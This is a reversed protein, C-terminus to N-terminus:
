EWWIQTWGRRHDPAQGVVVVFRQATMIREGARSIGSFLTNHLLTDWGSEVLIEYWRYSERSVYLGQIPSTKDDDRTSVCWLCGCYDVPVGIALWELPLAAADVEFCM